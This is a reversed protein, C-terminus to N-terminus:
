HNHCCGGEEGHKHNGCCGGEGHEHNGCCGGDHEGDHECHCHGSCDGDHGCCCDEGSMRNILGQIEDKTAERSEVIHGIFHLTQGALPHNLDVKVKDAGVNLVKGFFRNGDENQLPVIAGEFINEKDFHGNITFIDKDLELVHELTYDGYADDKELTFEFKDGKSLNILQEEFKDLAIGFGTIFQFPAENTAEEVLEKGNEGVTYLKYAVAIYKNSNNEM